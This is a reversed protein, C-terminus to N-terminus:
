KERIQDRRDRILDSVRNLATLAKELRKVDPNDSNAVQKVSDLVAEVMGCAVTIPSSIDHIFKREQESM